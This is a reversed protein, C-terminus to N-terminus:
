GSLHAAVVWTPGDLALVHGRRWGAPEAVPRGRLADALLHSWARPRQDASPMGVTRIDSQATVRRDQVSPVHAPVSWEARRGARGTCPM